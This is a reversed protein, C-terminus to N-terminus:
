VDKRNALMDAIWRWLIVPLSIPWFVGLAVSTLLPNDDIHASACAIVSVLGYIAAAIIVAGTV